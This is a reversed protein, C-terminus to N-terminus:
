EGLREPHRKVYEDIREKYAIDRKNNPDPTFEMYEPIDAGYDSIIKKDNAKVIQLSDYLTHNYVEYASLTLTDGVVNITQYYRSSIGYKDFIDRFAIRYNKPSCHSVTYVPTTPEGSSSHNTMRAYEHEHGQLVLDVGYEEILDNFMYRQIINNTEAVSITYLPHHLLVIKWKASSKELQEELWRRQTYLYPLERNSDLAFIDVDGYHLMYVQNDVIKSDLFYSFVLSFRHELKVKIGKLYDHNGTINLLPLAQCVSDIDRFTEAWFMDTPRETLDGGCVVFESEPHHALAAKLMENARGGITDQVDGVYLFSVKSADGNHTHFEYWPSPIDNTVVRYAYHADKQLNRLRAVYYAAVGGRSRFVEGNAEINITDGSPLLALELHSPLLVSDAQWSVNRSWESEDGFTLLVRHPESASIYPQEEPNHFWVDWRSSVWVAIAGVVAAIISLKVSTKMLRLIVVYEM